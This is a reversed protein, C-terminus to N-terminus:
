YLTSPLSRISLSFGTWISSGAVGFARKQVTSTRAFPVHLLGQEVSRLYLSSRASLTPGRLEVLSTPALGLLCRWVLAAM